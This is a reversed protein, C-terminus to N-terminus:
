AFRTYGISTKKGMMMGSKAPPNELKQAEKSQDHQYLCTFFLSLIVVVSAAMAISAHPEDFIRYILSILAYITLSLSVLLGALCILVIGFTALFGM